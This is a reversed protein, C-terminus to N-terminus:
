IYIATAALNAQFDCLLREYLRVTVTIITSCSLTGRINCRGSVRRCRNFHSM